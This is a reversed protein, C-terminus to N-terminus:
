AREWVRPRRAAVFIPRPMRALHMLLLRDKSRDFIAAIAARETTPLNESLRELTTAPDLDALMQRILDPMPEEGRELWWTVMGLRLFLLASRLTEGKASSLEYRLLDSLDRQVTRWPPRDEINTGPMRPTCLIAWTVLGLRYFLHPAAQVRGLLDQQMSLWLALPRNIPDLNLRM